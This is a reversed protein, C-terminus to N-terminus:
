LSGVLVIFLSHLLCLPLSLGQDIGISWLGHFGRQLQDFLTVTRECELQLLKTHIKEFNSEVSYVLWQVAAVNLSFSRNPLPKATVGKVSLSPPLEWRLRLSTM